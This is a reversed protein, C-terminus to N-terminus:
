RTTALATVRQARSSRYFWDDPASTGLAQASFKEMQEFDGAAMACQVAVLRVSLKFTRRATPAVSVGAHAMLATPTPTKAANTGPTLMAHCAM